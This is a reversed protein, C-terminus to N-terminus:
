ANNLDISYEVTDQNDIKDLLEKYEEATLDSVTGTYDGSHMSLSYRRPNIYKRIDKIIQYSLASGGVLVGTVMIGIILAGKSGNTIEKETELEYGLSDLHSYLEELRLSNEIKNDSKITIM